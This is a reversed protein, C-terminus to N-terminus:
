LLQQQQKRALLYLMHFEYQYFCMLLKKSLFLLYIHTKLAARKKKIDHSLVPERTTVIKGRTDYVLIQHQMQRLSLIRIKQQSFYRTHIHTYNEREREYFSRKVQNWKQQDTLRQLMLHLTNLALLIINVCSFM